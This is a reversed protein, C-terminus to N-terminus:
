RSSCDSTHLTHLHLTHLARVKFLLCERTTANRTAYQMAVRLDSTCSMPALETGGESLFSGDITLDRMGRWYTKAVNADQTGITVGRLRKIADALFHVTVPLPHRRGARLPQNITKYAATTYLRLAVVHEIALSAKRAEYSELFDNLSEGARGADLDGNEFGAPFLAGCTGARMKRVYHLLKQDEETGNAAFEDCIAALGTACTRM